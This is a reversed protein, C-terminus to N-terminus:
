APGALATRTTKSLRAYETNSETFTEATDVSTGTDGNVVDTGAADAFVEETVETAGGYTTMDVITGDEDTKEAVQVTRNTSRSIVGTAGTGFAM